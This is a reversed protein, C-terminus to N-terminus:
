YGMERPDWHCVQIMTERDLWLAALRFKQEEESIEGYQSKIRSLSLTQVAKNLEDIQRFKQQPTMERFGKIMIKQIESSTDNGQPMYEM